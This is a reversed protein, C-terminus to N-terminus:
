YPRTPESIHILSLGWDACSSYLPGLFKSLWIPQWLTRFYGGFGNQHLDTARAWGHQAHAVAQSLLRWLLGVGIDGEHPNPIIGGTAQYGGWYSGEEEIIEYAAREMAQDIYSALMRQIKEEGDLLRPRLYPALRYFCSKRRVREQTGPIPWVNKRMRLYGQGTGPICSGAHRSM